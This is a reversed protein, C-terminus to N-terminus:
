SLTKIINAHIEEISGEGNVELLVGKEKFFDLAPRTNEEYQELRRMVTAKADDTRGELGERKTLRTRLEEDSITLHVIVFPRGFWNMVDNFLTAEELKRVAGDFIIGEEPKLDMMDMIWLSSMIWHPVLVGQEMDDIIREGAIPHAAALKRLHDSATFIRFGSKESLLRVQTGKGSGPKGLVVITQYKM